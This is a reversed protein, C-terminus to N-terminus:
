KGAPLQSIRFDSYRAGRTWMHRLGIRGETVPPAADTPWHCLLEKESNRIHMFLDNGKKIVTIKHPIGKRFLGTEYISEGHEKFFRVEEQGPLYRKARIYDKAPDTNGVKFAAYSIHHLHMYMFYMRMAAVQRKDAWKSIDKDYGGRGYGTAQIYLITVAEAADDLKTYEYDLRLDGAFSRRTWMVAHSANEKRDPGARFDMGRDSNTITAKLGDVTWHERWDRTCPDHFVVRWDAESLEEFRVMSTMADDGNGQSVGCGTCALLMAVVCLGGNWEMSM